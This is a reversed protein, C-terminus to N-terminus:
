PTCTSKINKKCEDPFESSKRSTSEDLRQKRRKIRPTPLVTEVAFDVEKNENTELNEYNGLNKKWHFSKRYKGIKKFNGRSSRRIKSIM